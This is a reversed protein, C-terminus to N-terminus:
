RQSGVTFRLSLPGLDDLEKRAKQYQTALTLLIEGLGALEIENDSVKPNWTLM